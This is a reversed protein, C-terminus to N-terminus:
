KISQQIIQYLNKGTLNTTHGFHPPHTRPNAKGGQYAHRSTVITNPEQSNSLIHGFRPNHNLDVALYMTMFQGSIETSRYQSQYMDM